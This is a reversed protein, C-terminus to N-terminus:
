QLISRGPYNPDFRVTVTAGPLYKKYDSLQETDLRQSTEYRVNARYYSYYVTIGSNDRQTDIVRGETIRGHKLLWAAYASASDYGRLYNVLRSLLSVGM